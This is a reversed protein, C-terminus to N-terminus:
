MIRYGVSICLTSLYLSASITPVSRRQSQPLKIITLHRSLLGVILLMESPQSAVLWSVVTKLKFITYSRGLCASNQEPHNVTSGFALDAKSLLAMQPSSSAGLVQILGKRLNESKGQSSSLLLLSTSSPKLARSM